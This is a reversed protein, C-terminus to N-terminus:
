FLLRFRSTKSGESRVAVGAVPPVLAQSRFVPTETAKTPGVHALGGGLPTRIVPLICAPVRESPYRQGNRERRLRPARLDAFVGPNLKGSCDASTLPSFPLGNVIVRAILLSIQLM